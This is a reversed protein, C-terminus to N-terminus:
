ERARDGREHEVPLELRRAAGARVLAIQERSFRLRGQDARQFEDRTWRARMVGDPSHGRGPLLLHGLEHTMACALVLATSVDYREAEARIRRYFVYIVRRGAPTRLAAGMITDAARRLDGTENPLLVVTIVDADDALRAPHWEARVGLEHYVRTLEAAAPEVVAPPAGALNHLQLVLALSVISTM